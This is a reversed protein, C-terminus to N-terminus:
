ITALPYKRNDPIKHDAEIRCLEDLLDNLVADNRKVAPESNAYMHLADKPYKIVLSIYLDQRLYSKLMIM